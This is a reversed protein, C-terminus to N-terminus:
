EYPNDWNWHGNAYWIRGLCLALERRERQRNALERLQAPTLELEEQSLKLIIRKKM